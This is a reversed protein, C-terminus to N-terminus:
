SLPKSLVDPMRATVRNVLAPPADAERLVPAQYPEPASKRPRESVSVYRGHKDRPWQMAEPIDGESSTGHTKKSEDIWM